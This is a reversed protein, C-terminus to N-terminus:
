SALPHPPRPWSYHVATTMTVTHSLMLQVGTWHKSVKIKSPKTKGGAGSQSSHFQLVGAHLVAANPRFNSGSTRRVECLRTTIKTPLKIGLSQGAPAAAEPLGLGEDSIVPAKRVSCGKM